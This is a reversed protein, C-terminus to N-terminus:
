YSFFLVNLCPSPSYLLQDNMRWYRSATRFVSQGSAQSMALVSSITSCIFSHELTDMSEPLSPNGEEGGASGLCPVVACGEPKERLVPSSLQKLATRGILAQTKDKLSPDPPAVAEWPGGQRAERMELRLRLQHKENERM